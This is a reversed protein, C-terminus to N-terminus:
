NFEVEEEFLAVLEAVTAEEPNALASKMYESINESNVEVGLEASVEAIVAPLDTEINLYLDEELHDDMGIETADLNSFQAIGKIVNDIIKQSESQTM